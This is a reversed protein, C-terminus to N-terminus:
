RTVGFNESTQIDLLGRRHYYSYHNNRSHNACPCKGLINTNSYYSNAEIITVIISGARSAM